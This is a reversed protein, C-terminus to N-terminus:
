KTCLYAGLVELHHRQPLGCRSFVGMHRSRQWPIGLWCHPPSPSLTAKSAKALPSKIPFCTRWILLEKASLNLVKNLTRFSRGVSLVAIKATRYLWSHAQWSVLSSVLVILLNLGLRKLYINCLMGMKLQLFKLTQQQQQQQKQWVSGVTKHKTNEAM